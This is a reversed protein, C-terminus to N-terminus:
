RQTSVAWKKGFCSGAAHAWVKMRVLTHAQKAAGREGAQAGRTKSYSESAHRDGLGGM